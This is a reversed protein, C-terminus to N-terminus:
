RRSPTSGCRSAGAAALDQCLSFPPGILGGADHVSTGGAALYAANATLLAERYEERSPVSVAAFPTGATEYAVGLNRGDARDYRGGTPDPTADTV